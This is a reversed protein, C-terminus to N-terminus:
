TARVNDRGSPVRAGLGTIVQARAGGDDVRLSCSRDTPAIQAANPAQRWQLDNVRVALTSRVGTPTTAPCCTVPTQKLPFVQAPLAANGSGLVEARSEGHSAHAVNGYVTVTNRRFRHRLGPDALELYTHITDRTVWADDQQSRHAVARVM